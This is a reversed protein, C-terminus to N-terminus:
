DSGRPEEGRERQGADEDTSAVAPQSTPADPKYLSYLESLVPDSAIGQLETVHKAMIRWIDAATNARVMLESGGSTLAVITTTVLVEREGKQRRWLVVMDVRVGSGSDM